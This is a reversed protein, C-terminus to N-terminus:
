RSRWPGATVGGAGGPQRRQRLCRGTRAEELDALFQREGGRLASQEGREHDGALVPGRELGGREARGRGGGGRRAVRARGRGPRGRWSCRPCGSAGRWTGARCPGRVGPRASEGGRGRPQRRCRQATGGRSAGQEEPAAAWPGCPGGPVARGAVSSPSAVSGQHPARCGGRQGGCPSPLPRLHFVCDNPSIDKIKGFPHPQSGCRGGLGRAHRRHDRRALARVAGASPSRGAPRSRRPRQRGPRRDRRRARDRRALAGVSLASPLVSATGPVPM